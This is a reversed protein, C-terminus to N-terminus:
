LSEGFLGLNTGTYPWASNTFPVPALKESLEEIKGDIDNWRPEM